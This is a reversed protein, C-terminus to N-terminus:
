VPGRSVEQSVGGGQGTREQVTAVVKELPDPLWDTGYAQQKLAIIREVSADVRDRFTDIPRYKDQFFQITETIAAM